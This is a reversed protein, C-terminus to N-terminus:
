FDGIKYSWLQETNKDIFSLYQANEDIHIERVDISESYDVLINAVLEEELTRTNIRYISDNYTELGQYWVDPYEEGYALADPVACYIYEDDYSWTCKDVFTEINLPRFRGVSREYLSLRSRGREVDHVLLMENDHSPKTQLGKRETFSKHFNGNETELEYSYGLAAYSPKTTIEIHNESRWHSTWESFPSEFITRRSGDELERLVGNVGTSAKQLYFLEEDFPNMEASIINQPLFFGSIKYQSDQAELEEQALAEQQENCLDLMANQTQSGLAGDVELGNIEQFRELANVSDETALTSENGPSNEGSFVVRTGGERNLFRHIDYISENAEGIVLPGSFDFPCQEPDLSIPEITGLYSEIAREEKDWYQFLIHNGSASYSSREVNPIFNEVILEENFANEGSLKTEFVSGDEIDHYRLYYNEILITETTQVTNGEEDLDEQIIDQEEERILFAMGGTPEENILQLRSESEETSDETVEQEQNSPEGGEVGQSDTSDFGTGPEIEGFPFLNQNSGGGGEEQANQSMLSFLWILGIVLILIIFVVLIIKQRNTKM